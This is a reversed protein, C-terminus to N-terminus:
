KAKGRKSAQTDGGRAKGKGTEGRTCAVVAVFLCAFALYFHFLQRTLSSSLLALRYGASLVPQARGTATTNTRSDPVQKREARRGGCGNDNGWMRSGGKWVTVTSPSVAEDGASPGAWQFSCPCTRLPCIPPHWLLALPRVYREGGGHGPQAHGRQRPGGGGLGGRAGHRDVREVRALRPQLVSLAIPHPSALGLPVQPEVHAVHDHEFLLLRVCSPVQPVEEM